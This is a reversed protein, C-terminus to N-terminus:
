FHMIVSLLGRGQPYICLLVGKVGMVVEVKDGARESFGKWIDKLHPPSEQGESLLGCSGSVGFWWYIDSREKWAREWLTIGM